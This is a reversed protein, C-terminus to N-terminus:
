FLRKLGMNPNARDEPSVYDDFIVNYKLEDNSRSANSASVHAPSSPGTDKQYSPHVRENWSATLSSRKAATTTTIIIKGPFVQIENHNNTEAQLLEIRDQVASPVDSLASKVYIPQSALNFGPILAIGNSESVLAPTKSSTIVEKTERKHTTQVEQAVASPPPVYQHDARFGAIWSANLTSTKTGNKCIVAAKGEAENIDLFVSNSSDKLLDEIRSHLGAPTVAVADRFISPQKSIPLGPTSAFINGGLTSTPTKNLGLQPNATAVKKAPSSDSSAQSTSRQDWQANLVSTRAGNRVIIAIRGAGESLDVAVINSSDRLLESINDRVGRPVDRIADQFIVPQNEITAGATAHVANPHSPILAGITHPESSLKPASTAKLGLSPNARSDEAPSDIAVREFADVVRTDVTSAAASVNSRTGHVPRLGLSANARENFEAM